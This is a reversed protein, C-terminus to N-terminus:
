AGAADVHAGAEEAGDFGGDVLVDLLGDDLGLFGVGGEDEPPPAVGGPQVAVLDGLLSELDLLPALRALKGLDRRKDAALPPPLNEDVSIGLITDPGSPLHNPQNM